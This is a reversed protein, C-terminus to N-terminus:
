VYMGNLDSMSYIDKWVEKWDHDSHVRVSCLRKVTPAEARTIPRGNLTAVIEEPESWLRKDLDCIEEWTGVVVQKTQKHVRKYKM